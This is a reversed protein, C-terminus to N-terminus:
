IPGEISLIDSPSNRESQKLKGRDTGDRRQEMSVNWEDALGYIGM